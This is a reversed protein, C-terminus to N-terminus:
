FKKNCSWFWLDPLLVINPREMVKTKFPIIVNKLWLTWTKWQVFIYVKIFVFHFWFDWVTKSLCVKHKLEYLFQLNFTFSHHTPAHSYFFLASKTINVKDLPLKKLMQKIEMYLTDFVNESYVYLSPWFLIAKHTTLVLRM